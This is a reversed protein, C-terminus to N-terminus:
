SNKTISTGQPSQGLRQRCDKWVHGPKSFGSKLDLTVFVTAGCLSDLMEPIHPLPHADALSPAMAAMQPGPVPPGGAGGGGPVAM